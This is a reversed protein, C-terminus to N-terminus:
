LFIWKQIMLANVQQKKLTKLLILELKKSPVERKPNDEFGIVVNEPEVLDDIGIDEQHGGGDSMEQDNNIIEGEENIIKEPEEVKLKKEM